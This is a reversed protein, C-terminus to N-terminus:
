NLYNRLDPQFRSQSIVECRNVTSSVFAALEGHEFDFTWATWRDVDWFWFGKNVVCIARIAPLEAERIKDYRDTESTDRCTLDSAYAFICPVVHEIRHNEPFASLGVPPAHHFRAVQAASEHAKRLARSTLKSKVEITAISMEVPFAGTYADFLAPPMMGKSYIICDIQRSIEEYASIIKGTGIGFGRPLLPKLFDQVFVERLHGVLGNHRLGSVSKSNEILKRSQFIMRDRYLQNM